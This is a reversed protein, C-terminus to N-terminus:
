LNSVFVLIDILCAEHIWPVATSSSFLDQDATRWPDQVVTRGDLPDVLPHTCKAIGAGTMTLPTRRLALDAMNRKLVPACAVM